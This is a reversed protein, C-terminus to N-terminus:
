GQTIRASLRQVFGAADGFCTDAYQKGAASLQARHSPVTMLDLIQLLEGISCYGAGGGSRTHAAAASHAPVVIPTGFRLAEICETAIIPGPELDVVCLAHAFLRWLDTRTEVDVVGRLARGQWVAASGNEVVVVQARHLGATMWAVADTPPNCTPAGRRDSLALVYGTFGLGNHRHAAALQNIPVHMGLWDSNDSGGPLFDLHDHRGPWQLPGCRGILFVPPGSQITGFAGSTVDDLQDVIVRQFEGLPRGVRATVSVPNGLAGFDIGVLDFAGDALQLESQGPVLVTVDSFRTAAGAVARTVSALETGSDWQRSIILTSGARNAEPM